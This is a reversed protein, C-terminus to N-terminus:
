RADGSRIPNRYQILNQRQFHSDIQAFKTSIRLCAIAIASRIVTVLFSVSTVENKDYKKARMKGAREARSREKENQARYEAM